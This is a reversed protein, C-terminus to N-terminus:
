FAARSRLNRPRSHATSNLGAMLGLFYSCVILLLTGYRIEPEVIGLRKATGTLLWYLIGIWLTLGCGAGLSEAITEASGSTHLLSVAFSAVALILAEAAMLSRSRFSGFSSIGAEAALTVMEALDTASMLLGIMAVLTQVGLFSVVLAQEGAALLFVFVLMTAVATAIAMLLQLRASWHRRLAAEGLVAVAAIPIFLPLSDASANNFILFIGLLFASIGLATARRARSIRFLGLFLLSFVTFEGLALLVVAGIPVSGVLTFVLPGLNRGFLHVAMVLFIIASGSAFALRVDRDMDSIVIIRRRVQAWFSSQGEPLHEGIQGGNPAALETLEVPHEAKESM